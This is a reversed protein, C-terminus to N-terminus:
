GSPPPEAPAVATAVKAAQRQAQRKDFAAMRRTEAYPARCERVYGRFVPQWRVLKRRLAQAVSMTVAPNGFTAKERGGKWLEDPFCFTPARYWPDPLGADDDQVEGPIPDPCVARFTAATDM